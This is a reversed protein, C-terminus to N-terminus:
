ASDIKTRKRRSRRIIKENAGLEEPAKTKRSVKEDRIKSTTAELELREPVAASKKLSKSMEKKEPLDSSNAKPTVLSDDIESSKRPKTRNSGQPTSGM